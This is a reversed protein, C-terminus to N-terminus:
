DDCWFAKEERDYNGKIYVKRSTPSKVILEGKPLEKLRYYGEPMEFKKYKPM